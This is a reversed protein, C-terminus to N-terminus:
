YPSKDFKFVKFLYVISPIIIMTGVVLAILLNSIVEDPAIANYITLNNGGEIKVLVPFQVAFWGVVILTTQAGAILRLWLNNPKNIFRWLFPLLVTAISVAVLSIPSQLFQNLLHLNDVEAMLFVFGGAVILSILSFKSIKQMKIQAKEETEGILFVSALFTFLITVFVGMSMSFWNIWPSIYIAVFGKSLDTTIEGLIVSGLTVGLFFPTFISFIRFFSTYLRKYSGEDIDYYRFAFASGRFIIGILILLLPIHMYTSISTYVEPFGVFLIVIVLILWVHNAEWVPAIAKSVTNIGKNGTFYEVIGGGFDAGGLLVYFLLSIGLFLLILNEM